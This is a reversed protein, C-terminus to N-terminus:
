LNSMDDLISDVDPTITARKNLEGVICCHKDERNIAVVDQAFMCNMGASVQMWKSINSVEGPIEIRHSVANSVEKYSIVADLPPKEWLSKDDLLKHEYWKRNDRDHHMSVNYLTDGLKLKVAGSRYVLMKGMFGAPLEDLGCAADKLPKLSGAMQQGEMATKKMLPMLKPLQLFFMSPELNEEMLGLEIASNTSDEIHAMSESAEGFEEEDLLEPDGSYPRRLPLTVPYYTYYDWPEKYEKMERLGSAKYGGVAIVFLLIFGSYADRYCSISM